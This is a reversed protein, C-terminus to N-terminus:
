SLEWRLLRNKAVAKGLMQLWRFFTHKLFNNTLEYM